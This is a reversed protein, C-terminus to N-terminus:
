GPYPLFTPREKYHRFIEWNVEIDADREEQTKGDSSAPSTLAAFVNEQELCPFGKLYGFFGADRGRTGWESDEFGYRTGYEPNFYGLKTLLATNIAIMQTTLSPRYLVFDVPQVSVEFDYVPSKSVVPGHNENLAFLACTPAGTRLARIYRDEWHDKVPYYDDEFMFVIDKNQCCHFAQNRNAAIGGQTQLFAFGELNPDKLGSRTWFRNMVYDQTDDTCRDTAIVISYPIKTHEQIADLVHSLEKRRNRTVVCISVTTM